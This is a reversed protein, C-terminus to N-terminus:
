TPSFSRASDTPGVASQMQQTTILWRLIAKGREVPALLDLCALSGKKMEVCPTGSGSILLSISQSLHPEHGVLLLNSVNLSSLHEVIQRPDSSAELYETTSASVEGIEQKVAAAMQQARVLPSVLILNISVNLSRLYRGATVGQRRGAESLPRESDHLAPNEVADGHRLVFITM